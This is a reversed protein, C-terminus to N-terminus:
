HTVHIKRMQSLALDCMRAHDADIRGAHAAEAVSELVLSAIDLCGRAHALAKHLHKIYTEKEDLERWLPDWSPFDPSGYHKQISDVIAPHELLYGPNFDGLAFDALGEIKHLDQDSVRQFGMTWADYQREAIPARKLLRVDTHRHDRAIKDYLADIVADEGELAQLFTGNGYLMMGTVGAQTNRTLCTELLGLLQSTSLPERASSMYTLQIM